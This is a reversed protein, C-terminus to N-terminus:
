MLPSQCNARLFRDITLFIKQHIDLRESLLNMSM